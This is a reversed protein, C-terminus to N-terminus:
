GFLKSLDEDESQTIRAKYAVTVSTRAPIWRFAPVGFLKGREIMQRRSEPMPSVGFEMGRAVTRGNWPPSKRSRNEEWMGCWPFDQRRWQYGFLVRSSPAYAAFSAHELKPDMLHTTFGASSALDPYLRLDITGGSRAPAHPWDFETAARYLDGFDSEFTKSRTATLAFRTKGHQLFPDGLTVHQTWAVPRDLAALNEVSEEFHVTDREIRVVRRFALQAHRATTRLIAADNKLESEYPNVSAEGHVTIGAAAEEPSPGGFLDLCVNHGLIGALLKAEADEGYERHTAANYASPEITKWPPAWLPNVGSPKHFIEAVHGGELMLTVRIHDNELSVARRGRYNLTTTNV